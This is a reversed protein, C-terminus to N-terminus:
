IVRATVKSCKFFMMQRGFQEYFPGKKALLDAPINSAMQYCHSYGKQMHSKFEMDPEEGRAFQTWMDETFHKLNIGLNSNLADFKRKLSFFLFILLTLLRKAHAVQIGYRARWRSRIQDVYGRHFTEFQYGFQFQTCWIEKQHFFVFINVIHTFKKCTRSSNWIPSKVALLNPGCIRPSINWISVWIQISHMLNGKLPFIVLFM